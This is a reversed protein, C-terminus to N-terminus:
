LAAQHSAPAWDGTRVSVRRESQITELPAPKRAGGRDKMTVKTASTRVSARGVKGGEAPKAAKFIGFSKKRKEERHIMTINTNSVVEKTYEEKKVVRKEEVKKKEAMAQESEEVRKKEARAQERELELPNALETMEIVTDKRDLDREMTAARGDFAVFTEDSEPHESDDDGWECGFVSNKRNNLGGSNETRSKTRQKENLLTESPRRGLNIKPVMWPVKNKTLNKSATKLCVLYVLMAMLLFETGRSVIKLFFVVRPTRGLSIAQTECLITGIVHEAVLVLCLIAEAVLFLTFKQMALSTKGDNSRSKAAIEKLRGLLKSGQSACTLL